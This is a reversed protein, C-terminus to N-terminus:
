KNFQDYIKQGEDARLGSASTSQDAPREFRVMFAHASEQISKSSKLDVDLKLDIMEKWLFDLQVELTNPNRDKAFKELENWRGSGGLNTDEWQCIGRGPGNGCSPCETTGGQMITPDFTHASEIAINGMVGAVAEKSLGKDLLYNWVKQMNDKGTLNASECPNAKAGPDSPPTFIDNLKPPNKGFVIETPDIESGLTFNPDNSIEIHLHVGTSLGTSGMTGIKQGSVIKQGVDVSVKDFHFYRYYQYVPVTESDNGYGSSTSTQVSKTKGTDYRITVFNMLSSDDNALGPNDVGEKFVKIVEGSNISFVEVKENGLSAIDIGRHVGGPEVEWENHFAQTFMVPEKTVFSVNTDTCNGSDSQNQISFLSAIIATVVIMILIIPMIFLLANILLIKLYKQIIKNEM